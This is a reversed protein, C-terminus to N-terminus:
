TGIKVISNIWSIEAPKQKSQYESVGVGFVAVNKTIYEFCSRRAM